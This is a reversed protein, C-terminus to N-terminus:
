KKGDVQSTRNLTSRPHLRAGQTRPVGDLPERVLIFTNQALFTRRVDGDLSVPHVLREFPISVQSYFGVGGPRKGSRLTVGVLVTPSRRSSPCRRDVAM